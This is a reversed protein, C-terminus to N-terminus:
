IIQLGECETCWYLWFVNYFKPIKDLPEFSFQRGSGEQSVAEKREDVEPVSNPEKENAPEKCKVAKPQRMELDCDWNIDVTPASAM